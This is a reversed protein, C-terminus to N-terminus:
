LLNISFITKTQRIKLVDPISSVTEIVKVEAACGKMKNEHM